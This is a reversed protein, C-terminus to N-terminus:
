DQLLCFDGGKEGLISIDAQIAQLKQRLYSICVWVISEDMDEEDDWITRFLHKTTLKKTPNIMFHAM